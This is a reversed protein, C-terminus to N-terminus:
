PSGAPEPDRARLAPTPDGLRDATFAHAFEHIALSLLVLAVAVIVFATPNSSLLSILGMHRASYRSVTLCM